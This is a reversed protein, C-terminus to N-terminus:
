KCSRVYSGGKVLEVLIIFMVHMFVNIVERLPDHGRTLRYASNPCYAM